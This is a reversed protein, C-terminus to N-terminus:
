YKERIFNYIITIENDIDVLLANSDAILQHELDEPLISTGRHLADEIKQMIDNYRQTKHLESASNLDDHNLFECCPMGGDGDEEMNRAEEDEGEPYAENDSLEDLDALFSDPLSAM